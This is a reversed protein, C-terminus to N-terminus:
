MAANLAEENTIGIKDRLYLSKELESVELGVANAMLQRKAFDMNQFEDYGGMTDMMQQMAGGIDDQLLLERAKGINVHRGLAVSAEVEGVISQEFSLLHQTM